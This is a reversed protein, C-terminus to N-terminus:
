FLNFFPWFCGSLNRSYSAMKALFQFKENRIVEMLDKLAWISTIPYTYICNECAPDFFTIDGAGKGSPAPLKADSVFYPWRGVLETDPQNALWVAGLSNQVLFDVLHSATYLQTAPIVDAGQIKMGKTESLAAFVRDKDESHWYQYAWGLAAPDRFLEDSAVEQGCVVQRGSLLGICRGLAAVSPRLALAPLQDDFLMPLLEAHETFALEITAFLGADEQACLEPKRQALRHHQLSRWGYIERLKIVEDILGRAEMCRLALLSNAWTFAVEALYAAVARHRSAGARVRNVVFAEILERAQRDEGSLALQQADALPRDPRLGLRALRRGLDGVPEYPPTGPEDGAAAPPSAGHTGRRQACSGELIERM